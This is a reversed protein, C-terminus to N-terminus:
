GDYFGLLLYENNSFVNIDFSKFCIWPLISVNFCNQPMDAKAIFSTCNSYLSKDREYRSLFELYDACFETWIM